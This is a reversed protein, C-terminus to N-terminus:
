PLRCAFSVYYPDTDVALVGDGFERRLIAKVEASTRLQTRYSGTRLRGGSARILVATGLFGATRVLHAASGYRQRQFTHFNDAIWVNGILLGGPEVFTKLRAIVTAVDGLHHIAELCTVLDAKGVPNEAWFDGLLLELDDHKVRERTKALGQESIDLATIQKASTLEATLRTYEGTGCCFELARDTDAAYRSLYGTVTEKQRILDAALIPHQEAEDRDWFRAAWYKRGDPPTNGLVARGANAMLEALM